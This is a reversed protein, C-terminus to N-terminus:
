PQATGFASFLWAGRFPIPNHGLRKDRASLLISFRRRPRPVERPSPDKGVWYAELWRQLAVIHPNSADVPADLAGPHHTQADFWLGAIGQATALATLPGIPSDLVAQAVLPVGAFAQQVTTMSSKTPKAMTMVTM